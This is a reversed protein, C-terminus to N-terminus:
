SSPQDAPFTFSGQYAGYGETTVGNATTGRYSSAGPAVAFVVTGGGAVTILGAHVAATCVSSDDTYTGTGWASGLRGDPSCRLEIQTGDKGRYESATRQWSEPAVAFTGSGPPADPFVFSGPYAGYYTSTVGHAVGADYAVKGPAIEYEVEGGKDLTILGVHVAATCISSDDTYTEVGWIGAPTGPPTCDITFRKGTDARHESATRAWVDAAAGATSATTSTAEETTTTVGATTTTSKSAVDSSDDGGGCAAGLLVAVGVCAVACISRGTM